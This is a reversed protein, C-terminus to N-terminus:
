IRATSDRVIRIKRRESQEDIMRQMVAALEEHCKEIFAPNEPDAGPREHFALPEGFRLRIHIPFPIYPMFPGPTLGWPLSFALPIQKFRFLEGLGLRRALGRGSTIIFLTEHGGRACVPIVPAAARVALKLFGRRGHFNVRNRAGFPKFADKDGGPYVLLFNGRRLIEGAAEPNAPTAGIERLAAGLGPIKFFADHALAHLPTEFGMHRYWAVFLMLMDPSNIAGSHNGVLLAPGAAPLTELGSVSVDFYHRYAIELLSVVRRLAEADPNM